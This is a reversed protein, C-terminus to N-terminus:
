CLGQFIITPLSSEKQSPINEPAINFKLHTIIFNGMIGAIWDSAMMSFMLMVSDVWGHHSIWIPMRWRPFSIDQPIRITEAADATIVAHQQHTQIEVYCIM